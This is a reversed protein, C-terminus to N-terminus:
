YFYYSYLNYTSIRMPKYSWYIRQQMSYYGRKPVGMKEVLDEENKTVLSLGSMFGVTSLKCDVFFYCHFHSHCMEHSYLNTNITLYMKEVEAESTRDM